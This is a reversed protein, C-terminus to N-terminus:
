FVGKIKKAYIGNVQDVTSPTKIDSQSRKRVRDLISMRPSVNPQMNSNSGTNPVGSGENSGTSSSSLTRSRFFQFPRRDKITPSINM